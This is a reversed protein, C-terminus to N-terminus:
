GQLDDGLVSEIDKRSATVSGQVMQPSGGGRAGLKEKLAAALLRADGSKTGIIYKYGQSDSGGFVGAYGSVKELALNVARRMAPAELNEKFFWANEQGQAIADIDKEILQGTLEVAKQRLQGNEELKHEVAKAVQGFPASLLRSICRLEDQIRCYDKLARFGCLISIRTGGKYKQFDTVKLLGIEGTRAVHPACCACVDWGEVTILRVQGDIQIKSRYEITELEEKDPYSVYIPVNEVIAQNVQSEIQQIDGADLVGNFDMTVAQSGLHFGVNNYGFHRHVLGSFIHEGSHQQMNSFRQEWDLCGHVREGKEGHFDTCHWLRGDVIQVDYVRGEGLWGTDASQGGGEPFFATRDLEVAWAGAKGGAQDPAGAKGGAQGPAGAKPLAMESGFIQRAPVCDAVVADFEKVYSDNEYLKQTIM